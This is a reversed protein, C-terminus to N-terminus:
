KKTWSRRLRDLVIPVASPPTGDKTLIKVLMSIHDGRVIVHDEVGALRTSKLPVVGDGIDRALKALLESLDGSPKGAPGAGSMVKERVAALSRGDLPAAVGAIISFEVDAPLPRGNLQTLFPSEPLLDDKAEGLGDVIGSLFCGEGSFAHWVQDRFEAAFRFRALASGHNPTGVMVVRRISPFRDGGRGRGGYLDPHTLVERTILGGMSHAVVDATELGLKRLGGLNAAFSRASEALGRDDAYRFECVAFGEALLEPVLDDWIIGPEDLGHILVVMASSVTDATPAATRDEALFVRMGYRSNAEAAAEPFMRCCFERLRARLPARRQRLGSRDVEVIVEEPTTRIRLVGDAAQELERVKEDWGAGGPVGRWGAEQRLAAGDLGVEDLLEALVRGLDVWGRDKDVRIRYTAKDQDAAAGGGQAPLAALVAILLV